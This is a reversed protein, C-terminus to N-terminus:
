CDVGGGGVDVIFSRQIVAACDVEVTGVVGGDGGFIIDLVVDVGSFVECDFAVVSFKAQAAGTLFEGKIAVGEGSIFDGGFINVEGGCAVYANIFEAHEAVVVIDVCIIM